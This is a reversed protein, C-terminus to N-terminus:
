EFVNVVAERNDSKVRDLWADVHIGINIDVGELQPPFRETGQELDNFIILIVLMSAIALNDGM